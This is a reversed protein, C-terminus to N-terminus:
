SIEIGNSGSLSIPNRREAMKPYRNSEISCKITPKSANQNTSIKGNMSKLYERNVNKAPPITGISKKGSLSM